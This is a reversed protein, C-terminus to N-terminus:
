PAILGCRVAERVLDAHNHLHLRDMICTKHFEVTRPSVNLTSAIEKATRGEAVLQMIERQRSTLLSLGTPHAPKHMFKDLVDKAIMPTLYVRGKLVERIAAALEAYAAHKLVFGKAGAEFARVAYSADPHMTLVIVKARTKLKTLQATAEIGNLLPMQMDTVAVDPDLRQVAEILERGNEVTAVLDFDARLLSSMGDIVMLHDDALVVRPRTM